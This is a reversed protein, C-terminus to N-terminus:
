PAPRSRLFVRFFYNYASVYDNMAVGCPTRLFLCYLGVQRLRPHVCGGAAIGESVCGDRVHRPKRTNKRALIVAERLSFFATGDVWRPCFLKRLEKPANQMMELLKRKHAESVRQREAWRQLEFQKSLCHTVEITLGVAEIGQKLEQLSGVHCHSPDRLKEFANYYQISTRDEVTYNDTFGLLGGPKLVRFIECM